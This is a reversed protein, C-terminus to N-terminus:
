VLSLAPFYREEKCQFILLVLDFHFLKLAGMGHWLRMHESLLGSYASLLCIDSRRLPFCLCYFRSSVCGVKLQLIILLSGRLYDFLPLIHQSLIKHHTYTFSHKVSASRDLGIWEDKEEKAWYYGWENLLSCSGKFKYGWFRTFAL